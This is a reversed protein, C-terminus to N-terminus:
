QGKYDKITMEIEDFVNECSQRLLRITEAVEELKWGKKLMAGIVQCAAHGDLYEAMMIFPQRQLSARSKLADKVQGILEAQEFQKKFGEFDLINKM